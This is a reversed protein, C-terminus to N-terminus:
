VWTGTGAVVNTHEWLPRLSKGYSKNRDRGRWQSSPSCSPSSPKQGQGAMAVFALLITIITQKNM